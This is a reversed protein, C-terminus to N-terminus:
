EDDQELNYNRAYSQHELHSIANKLVYYKSEVRRISRRIRQSHALRHSRQISATLKNLPFSLASLETELKRKFSVDTRRITRKCQKSFSQAAHYLRHVQRYAYHSKSVKARLAKMLHKAEHELEYALKAYRHTNPQQDYAFSTNSILGVILVLVVFKLKKM